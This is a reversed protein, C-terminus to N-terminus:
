IGHCVSPMNTRLEENFTIESDIITRYVGYVQSIALGPTGFPSAQGFRYAVACTDGKLVVPKDSATSPMSYRPRDSPSSFLLIIPQDSKDINAFVSSAGKAGDPAKASGPIIIEMWCKGDPRIVATQFDNELADLVGRAESQSTLDAVAKDYAKFTDSAITVVALIIVIMIATSVMVEILTFGRRSYSINKNNM